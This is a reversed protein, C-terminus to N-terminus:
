MFTMLVFIFIMIMVVVMGGFLLTKNTDIFCMNHDEREPIMDLNKQHCIMGRFDQTLYKLSLPIFIKYICEFYDFNIKYIVIM